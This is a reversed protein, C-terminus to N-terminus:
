RNLRQTTPAPVPAANWDCIDVGNTRSDAQVNFPLLTHDTCTADLGCAVADTYGATDSRDILWAYAIYTGVPLEVLYSDQNARLNMTVVEGSTVEDFYLVMATPTTMQPRCVDGSITGTEVSGPTSTVTPRPREAVPTTPTATPTTTPVETPEDTPTATPEDTPTATPEDTATATPEDTPTATPEDTATATPEDTPTATPEDTPTETPVTSPLPVPTQTSQGANSDTATATATETTGSTATPTATSTPSPTWTATWTPTASPSPVISPLAIPTLDVTPTATATATPTPSPQTTPTVQIREIGFKILAGGNHEYYDVRLDHNGASVPVEASITREEGDAWADLIVVGDLWVRAGDDVRVTFRHVGADFPLNRSWRASFDNAPVVSAPSGNGWNFDISGDSRVLVPNGDQRPNNWYEGKWESFGAIKEWWFRSVASGTREYYEVRLTHAGANLRGEFTVERRGGDYWQDLLLNGDLTVRMGDDMIAHFRYVGEDFSFTGGWRASFNNTPIGAGPSGEGWDFDIFDDTRVEVPSGSLSANSFYEAFWPTTGANRSWSFQILAEGMGEFYEIRIPYSGANLQRQASYQTASAEHWQDILLDNGIWVRVGDDVVVNFTYTGANLFITQQWRASFNNSPLSGAPSGQGWNFDVQSDTRTLAPNGELSRNAYYEARWGTVPTSTATPLGTATPTATVSRTPTAVIPAEFRYDTFSRALWGVEGYANGSTVQVKLWSGNDNQGLVALRTGNSLAVLVSYGTGPGRRLNLANSTVFATWPDRTPTPAVTQGPRPTPTVTPIKTPTHTPTATASSTASPGPTPTDTNDVTGRQLLWLETNLEENADPNWAIILVTPQDIWAADTPLTVTTSLVGDAEVTATAYARRVTPAPAGSQPDSLGILVTGQSWGEGRVTIVDGPAAALPEVRLTYDPVPTATAPEAIVPGWVCGGAFLLVALLPLFLYLRHMQQTQWHKVIAECEKLDNLRHSPPAVPADKGCGGRALNDLM